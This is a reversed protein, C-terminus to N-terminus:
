RKVFDAAVDGAVARQAELSALSERFYETVWLKRDSRADTFFVTVRSQDAGRVSVLLIRTAGLEGAIRRSSQNKGRYALVAPWAVVRAAQRNALEAAIAEALLEDAGDLGAADRVIWRAPLVVVMDGEPRAALYIGVAIVALLVVAAVIRPLRSPRPAVPAATVGEPETAPFFAPAYSGKPFEIRIADSRGPGNYYDRLKERLRRAEVRVIPDLRPDYEDDRDFVERGILYEKIQDQEGRLKADVAFRLFRSLRGANAFTESALMRDLQARVADPPHERM